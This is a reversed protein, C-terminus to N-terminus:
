LGKPVHFYELGSKNNKPVRQIISAKSISVSYRAQTRVDTASLKHGSLQQSSIAQLYRNRQDQTCFETAGLIRASMQQAPIAHLCRNRQAQTRVDTAGLNRASM